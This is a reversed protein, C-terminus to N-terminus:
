GENEGKERSWHRCSHTMVTVYALWSGDIDCHCMVYSKCTVYNNVNTRICHRCNCCVKGNEESM